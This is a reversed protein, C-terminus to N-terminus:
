QQLQGLLRRTIYIKALTGEIPPRGDAPAPTIPDQTNPHAQQSPFFLISGPDSGSGPHQPYFVFNCLARETQPRPRYRGSGPRKKACLAHETRHVVPDIAAAEEGVVPRKNRPTVFARPVSKAYSSGTAPITNAVQLIANGAFLAYLEKFIPAQLPNTYSGSYQGRNLCCVTYTHLLNRKERTARSCVCVIVHM